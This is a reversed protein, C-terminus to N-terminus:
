CVINDLVEQPVLWEVELYKKFLDCLQKPLVLVNGNALRQVCDEIISKQITSHDTKDLREFFPTLKNFDKLARQKIIKDDVIKGYAHQLMEKTLVSAPESSFTQM